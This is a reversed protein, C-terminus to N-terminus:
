SSAIGISPPSQENDNENYMTTDYVAGVGKKPARM